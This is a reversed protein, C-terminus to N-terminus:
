RQERVAELPSREYGHVLMPRGWLAADGAGNSRPDVGLELEVTRGAFRRLDVELVKWPRGPLVTEARVPEGDVRVEFVVGDSGEGADDALGVWAVLGSGPGLAVDSWSLVSRRSSGGDASLPPQLIGALPRGGVTRGRALETGADRRSAVHLEEELFVQTSEPARVLALDGSFGAYSELDPSVVFALVVGSERSYGEALPVWGRELRLAILAWSEPTHAGPRTRAGLLRLARDLEARRLGAEEGRPEVSGSSALVLLEGWGADEAHERLERADPTSSAVDYRRQGRLALDPGVFAARLGPGGDGVLTRDGIRMAEGMREPGTGVPASPLLPGKAGILLELARDAGSGRVEARRFLVDAGDLALVLALLVVSLALVARVTTV